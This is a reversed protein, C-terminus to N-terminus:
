DLDDVSELKEVLSSTSQGVTLPVLAVRGGWSMVDERGVVEELRYDAGKVLVDPELERILELPTDEDFVVVLDVGVLAELIAGRDEAPVLPRGPGKLKRVSADGNLGVVLVDGERRAARLLDIHGRHLLDFCGNTFVVVQSEEKARRCREIAERRSVVRGV